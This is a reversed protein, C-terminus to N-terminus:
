QASVVESAVEPMLGMETSSGSPTQVPLRARVSVKPTEHRFSDLSPSMLETGRGSWQTSRINMGPLYDESDVWMSSFSESAHQVLSDEQPPLPSGGVSHQFNLVLSGSSGTKQPSISPTETLSGSLAPSVGPASVPPTSSPVTGAPIAVAPQPLKPIFPAVPPKAPPLSKQREKQDIHLFHTYTTAGEFYLRIHFILLELTYYLLFCFALLSLGVTIQYFLSSVHISSSIMEQIAQKRIFSMLFLTFFIIVMLLSYVSLVVLLSFFYHYNKKGICTNLWKCHHDFDAVCKNCPRCHETSAKVRKRCVFCYHGKEINTDEFDDAPNIATTIVVLAVISLELLTTVVTFLINYPRPVVMGVFAIGAAVIVVFLVWSIVQYPHWPWQFGNKRVLPLTSRTM